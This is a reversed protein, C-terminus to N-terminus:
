TELIYGKSSKKLPYSSGCPHHPFSINTVFLNMFHLADNLFKNFHFPQPHVVKRVDGLPVKKILSM